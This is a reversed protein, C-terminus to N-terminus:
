VVCRDFHLEWGCEEGERDGGGSGDEGTGGGVAVPVRLHGDGGVM